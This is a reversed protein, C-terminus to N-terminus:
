EEEGSAEDEEMRAMYALLALLTKADLIEGRLAMQLAQEKPITRTTLHEGREPSPEQIKEVGEALYIYMKETSVGPSPYVQLLLSWEGGGYGTEELLERRACALPDEGPELTGAPLELLKCTCGVRWQEVFVVEGSRTVPLVVAAGPHLLLDREVRDGCAEVVISALAFRRGRCLLRAGAVRPECDM